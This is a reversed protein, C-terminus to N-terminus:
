EDIPLVARRSAVYDNWTVPRGNKAAGHWLYDLVLTFDAGQIVWIKTASLSAVRRRVLARQMEKRACIGAVLCPVFLHRDISAENKVTSLLQIVQRVSLDVRPDVSNVGYVGMYLYILLTHRWCEHVALRAVSTCSELSQEIPSVWGRIEVELSSWSNSPFVNHGVRYSRGANLQGLLVVFEEPCGYMWELQRQSFRVRELHSDYLLLPNTGFILASITDMWVFRFIEPNPLNIVRPLSISGSNTWITPYCCAVRHFLPAAHKMLLYGSPTDATIFKFGALDMVGTLRSELDLISSNSNPSLDIQRYLQDIRRTFGRWDARDFNDLLAQIIKAGLFMSSHVINSAKVRM